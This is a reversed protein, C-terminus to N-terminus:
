TEAQKLIKFIRGTKAIRRANEHLACTPPSSLSSKVVFFFNVNWSVENSNLIISPASGLILVSNFILVIGLLLVFELFKTRITTYFNRKANDTADDDDRAANKANGEQWATCQASIGM